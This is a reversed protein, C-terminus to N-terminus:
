LDTRRYFAAHVVEPDFAPAIGREKFAMKITILSLHLERGLTALTVYKQDFEPAEITSTARHEGIWIQRTM